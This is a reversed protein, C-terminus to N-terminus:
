VSTCTIKEEILSIQKPMMLYLLIVVFNQCWWTFNFVSGNVQLNLIKKKEYFLV